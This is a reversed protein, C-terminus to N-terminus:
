CVMRRTQWGEGTSRLCALVEPSYRVSVFQKKSALPPRGWLAKSPAMQALQATTLLQPDLDAQAAATVKCDKAMGLMQVPMRNSSKSM